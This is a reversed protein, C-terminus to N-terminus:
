NSWEKVAEKQHGSVKKIGPSKSNYKVYHKGHHLCTISYTDPEGDTFEYIFQEFQTEIEVIYDYVWNGDNKAVRYQVIGTVDSEQDSTKVWEGNSLSWDVSLEIPNTPASRVDWFGM